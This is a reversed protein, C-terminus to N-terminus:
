AAPAQADAHSQSMVVMAHELMPPLQYSGVNAPGLFSRHYAIAGIEKIQVPTFAEIDRDSCITQPGDPLQITDTPYWSPTTEGNPGRYGDVSAVAYMFSFLEKESQTAAKDVIRIFPGPPIPRLNFRMAKEGTKEAILKPDRTKAYEAVSMKTHDLAPDLVSVFAVTKTPDTM